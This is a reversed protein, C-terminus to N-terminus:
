RSQSRSDCQFIAAWASERELYLIEAKQKTNKLVESVNKNVNNVLTM